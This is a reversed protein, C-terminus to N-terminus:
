PLLDLRLLESPAVEARLLGQERYWAIQRAIDDVDVRGAPDVYFASQWVKAVAGDPRCARATSGTPAVHGASTAVAVSPSTVRTGIVARRAAGLVPAAKAEIKTQWAAMGARVALASIPPRVTGADRGAVTERTAISPSVPQRRLFPSGVCFQETAAWHGRPRTADDIARALGSTTRCM